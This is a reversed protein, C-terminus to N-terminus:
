FKHGGGGHSMGSSSTHHSSGGGGNGFGPGSENSRRWRHVPSSNILNISTNTIKIGDKVLYMSSEQSLKVPKNRKVLIVTLIISVILSLIIFTSYPTKYVVKGNSITYKNNTTSYGLNYYTTLKSVLIDVSNKYNGSHMANDMSSLAEEIRYDDYYLIATGVTSIYFERNQMDIVYVLGDIQFDNYDYFDDAYEMTSNKINSNTTVIALDLSTETIFNIVEEYIEQEESDTFLDAFDYVKESADIAPTTIVNNYMSSKYNIKDPVRLNDSTREFTNTSANVSYPNIIFIIIPLILFILNNKM